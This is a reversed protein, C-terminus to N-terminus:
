KHPASIGLTGKANYAVWENYQGPGKSILEVQIEIQLKEKPFLGVQRM